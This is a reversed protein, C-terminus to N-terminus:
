AGHAEAVQRRWDDLQDLLATKDPEDAHQQRLMAVEAAHSTLSYESLESFDAFREQKYQKWRNQEEANLSEPANRARYRFALEQLREDAFQTEMARQEQWSATRFTRFLRQDEDPIFSGYLGQDADIGHDDYSRDFVHRLTDALHTAQRLTEAREMRTSPDINLRTWEAPRVHDTAIVVPSKNLHIAKIPAREVGEPLDARPTYLLDMLTDPDEDMWQEPAVDTGAVLVQNNNSPHMCIPVVINACGHEAPFRSSVHVVPTRNTVDLMGGVHRKNKAKLYYDFLKPQKERILRALAITVLVDSLADHAQEHLLGNAAALHELKFSPSGDDRKPWEIGEPRLAYTLRVLDIIDWRSNGAKWERDYVPFFNRYLGFRIFEDDFRLSNFGVGCTGPESFHDFVEAFFAAETLGHKQAHQPTIGTLLTATPSPLVDNAPQCYLMIPEGIPNLQMDTRQAAIQAIRTRRPDRGFTELDYWLFTNM